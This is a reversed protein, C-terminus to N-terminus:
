TSTAEKQLNCVGNKEDVRQFGASEFMRLSVTNDRKVLAHLRRFGVSEALQLMRAGVGRGRCAPSCSLHIMADDKGIAELRIQGVAEGKATRLIFFKSNPEVLRQQLWRLHTEWPIHEPHFSQHRVEPDNAWDWLMHADNLTVPELRSGYLDMAQLIRRCGQGDVMRSTQISPTVRYQADNILLQLASLFDEAPLSNEAEVVTALGQARVHAAIKRQNDVSAVLICPLGCRFAELCSTSAPLIAADAWLYHQAM